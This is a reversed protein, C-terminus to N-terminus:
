KNFKIKGAWRLAPKEIILYFIYAIFINILVLFIFLPYPKIQHISPFLLLIIEAALSHVLYLSYSIKGLFNTILTKFNLHLIALCSLLGIIGTTASITKMLFISLVFILIHTFKLNIRSKQYLFCFIGLIFYHINGLIFNPSHNIFYGSCGIVLLAICIYYINAKKFYPFLLGIIIYFQFELGLTWFVSQYWDYHSFPILYAIHFVVKLFDFPYLHYISGFLLCILLVLLYPPDIRVSRKFIYKFFDKREYNSNWLSYPIIFGSIVFFVAVGQQGFHLVKGIPLKDLGAAYHMHM